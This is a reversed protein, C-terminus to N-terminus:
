FRFEQANRKQEEDYYIFNVNECQDPTDDRQNLVNNNMPERFLSYAVGLIYVGVCVALFSTITLSKPKFPIRKM